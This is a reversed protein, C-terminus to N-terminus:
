MEHSVAVHTGRPITSNVKLSAEAVHATVSVPKMCGGCTKSVASYHCLTCHISCFPCLSLCYNFNFHMQVRVNMLCMSKSQDIKLDHNRAFSSETPLFTYM